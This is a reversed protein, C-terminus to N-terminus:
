QGARPRLQLNPDMRSDESDDNGWWFASPYIGDRPIPAPLVTLLSQPPVNALGGFSLRHHM